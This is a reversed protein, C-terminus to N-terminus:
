LTHPCFFYFNQIKINYITIFFKNIIYKNYKSFIISLDNIIKKKKMKKKMKNGDKIDELKKM